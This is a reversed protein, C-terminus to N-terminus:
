DVNALWGQNALLREDRRDRRENMLNFYREHLESHHDRLAPLTEITEGALHAKVAEAFRRSKAESRGSHIAVAEAIWTDREIDQKLKESMSSLATDFLTRQGKRPVGWTDCELEALEDLTPPESLTVSESM